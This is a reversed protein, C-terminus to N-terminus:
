QTASAKCAENSTDTTEKIVGNEDYRTTMVFCWLNGYPVAIVASSSQPIDISNVSSYVGVSQVRWYSRYGVVRADVVPTWELVANITAPIATTVSKENSVPSWTSDKAKCGVSTYQGPNVTVTFSVPTGKPPIAPSLLSWVKASSSWTFTSVPDKINKRCELETLTLGVGPAPVVFSFVATTPTTSVLTLTLIRAPTAHALGVLGLLAVLAALYSKVKM